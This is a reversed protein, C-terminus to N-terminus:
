KMSTLELGTSRRDIVLTTTERASKAVSMFQAISPFTTESRVCDWQREDIVAVVITGAQLCDTLMPVAHSPLSATVKDLPTGPPAAVIWYPLEHDHVYTVTRQTESLLSMRNATWSLQDNLRAAGRDSCSVVAVISVVLLAVRVCPM